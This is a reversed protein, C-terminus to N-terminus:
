KRELQAIKDVRRQHRGGDFGTELFTAIYQEATAPDTYKSAIALVNADNHRRSLEVADSNVAVAARIGNIKNAAIVMGTGTTCILVGREAFGAAVERSVAAAFDPYDRSEANNTGLDAVQHGQTRLADSIQQKLAVGAHDSGIAIKM